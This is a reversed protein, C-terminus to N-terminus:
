SYILGLELAFRGAKWVIVEIHLGYHGAVKGQGFILGTVVFAALLALLARWWRVRHLGALGACAAWAFITKVFVGDPRCRRRPSSPRRAPAEVSSLSVQPSSCRAAWGRCTNQRLPRGRRLRPPLQSPSGATRLLPPRDGSRRTTCTPVSRTSCGSRRADGPSGGDPARPRAARSRSRRHGRRHRPVRGSEHRAARGSVLRRRIERAPRPIRGGCVFQQDGEGDPRAESIWGPRAPTSCSKCSGPGHECLTAGDRARRRAQRARDPQAGRATLRHCKVLKGRTLRGQEGDVRAAGM